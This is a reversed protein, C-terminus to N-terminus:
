RGRERDRLGHEFEEELERTRSAIDQASLLDSVVAAGHAGAAAVSRITTRGIGGIAVVPLPISAVERRFRDLGLVEADV